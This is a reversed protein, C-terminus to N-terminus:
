NLLSLSFKCYGGLHSKADTHGKDAALQFYKRATTYDVTCGKGSEYMVGITLRQSFISDILIYFPNYGLDFQADAHGKDAALQFCQMAKPYDVACGQGSM